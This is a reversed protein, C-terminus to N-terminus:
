RVTNGGVEVRGPRDPEGACSPAHWHTLPFLRACAALWEERARADLHPWATGYSGLARTAHEASRASLARAGAARAPDRADLATVIAHWRTDLEQWLSATTSTTPAISRPQESAARPDRPDHADHAHSTMHHPGSARLIQTVHRYLQSLLAASQDNVRAHADAPAPLALVVRRAMDPQTDPQTDPETPASAREATM